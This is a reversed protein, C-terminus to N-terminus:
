PVEKSLVVERKENSALSMGRCQESYFRDLQKTVSDFLDYHYNAYSCLFTIKKNVYKFHKQEQLLAAMKKVASLNSGMKDKKCNMKQIEKKFFKKTEYLCRLLLDKLKLISTVDTVVNYLIGKERAIEDNELIRQFLNHVTSYVNSEPLSFRDLCSAMYLFCYCLEKSDLSENFIRLLYCYSYVIEIVMFKVNENVDRNCCIHEPTRVKKIVCNLWWPQFKAIHANMDNSKLFSFFQKQETQTLHDLKLQDSKALETLVKYRKNSICWKKLHGNQATPSADPRAASQTEDPDAKHPAGENAAGEEGDATGEEEGAIGEEEEEEEEDQEEGGEAGGGGQEYFRRLKFKFERKELDTLQNNKINERVQNEQFNQVCEDNHRKYCELSCYVIECSPCVYQFLKQKCVQCTKRM